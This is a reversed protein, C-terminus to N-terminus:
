KKIPNLIADIREKADILHIKTKRNEAEDISSNIDEKLIRLQERVTPRIDSQSIDVNVTIFPLLAEPYSPENTMLYKMNEIYGRQLNRRFVNIEPSNNDLESWILNRLDDMMEYSTYTDKDSRANWEILSGIKLESTVDYLLAQQEQRIKNVITTENIRDLVKDNLLWQPTSFGYKGIWKMAKKQQKESVFEYVPGEQSHTKSNEYIGGINKQVYDNYQIWQDIIEDYLEQLEKYDSEERYTWALLNDVIRNLNAIGLRGATMPDNSLDELQVRPDNSNYGSYFYRPDGARERTWKNLTEENKESDMEKPFWSYGWKIAWKDYTGVEPAFNNVGDDPQAIYNFRAYDMISPATGHDLTFSPSRLSDVSFAYSSGFNHALGLTHGVEHAIVYEILRGMVEDSFKVNRAKPNAAATQVFYWNRLLNMMNHSWWIDSEIIQGSRPDHVHPGRANQMESAFYRIVSYRADEPSWDPNEEKSPPEKAIIANKFGAARFAKQWAEIGQKFYSRWKDPTAPGIYYVIPNKPEVLDGNLYAKKDKPILKYRNIYQKQKAKHANTSYDTQQVSFYGIRQDYPRAQMPQKPLLVMSHNIEMSITQTSTNSPPNMAQYTMWNRAEINNPYSNIHEIYSRESDLRRVQYRERQSSQLGMSPIDSAYLKTVDIVVGSSDQSLSKIPFSAIIPDFNSNKVAEYVPLSDNAVNEYSIHRLLVDGQKKQWKVVQTNLKVGGPMLNNQTEAVRSVLLMDRNLLSDPIEYLYKKGVKHVDFLGVDTVANDTIVKDYPKTENQSKKAKQQPPSSQQDKTQKTSACSSLFM